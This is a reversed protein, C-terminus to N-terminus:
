LTCFQFVEPRLCSLVQTKVWEVDKESLLTQYREHALAPLLELLPELVRVPDLTRTVLRQGFSVGALCFMTYEPQLENSTSEM